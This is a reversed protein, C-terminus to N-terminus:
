PGTTSASRKSRAPIRPGHNHDAIQPKGHDKEFGVLRVRYKCLDCSMRVDGAILEGLRRKAAAALLPHNGFHGAVAIELEPNEKQFLAAAKGIRKALVGTFLFYPLVLIRRAGTAAARKLGEAVNPRTVSVFAVDFGTFGSGEWLLRAAKYVNANADPDSSGAEVVLIATEAAPRPPLPAEAARLRERALEILEPSVGLPMGYRLDVHPFHARGHNIEFPVDNKVHRAAFLFLPLAYIREAGLEVCHTIGEDISPESLELFSEVVPRGDTYAAFAGAFERFESVSDDDRSGHGLLLVAERAPGDLRVPPDVIHNKLYHQTKLLAVVVHDLDNSDFWDRTQLRVVPRDSWTELTAPMNEGRLAVVLGPVLVPDVCGLLLSGDLVKRFNVLRLHRSRRAIERAAAAGLKNGSAGGHAQEGAEFWGPERVPPGGAM